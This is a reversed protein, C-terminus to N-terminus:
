DANLPGIQCCGLSARGESPLLSQPPDRLQQCRWVVSLKLVRRKFLSSRHSSRFCVEKVGPFLSFAVMNNCLSPWLRQSSLM